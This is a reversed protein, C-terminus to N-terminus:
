PSAGRVLRPFVPYIKRLRIPQNLLLSVVVCAFRFSSLPIIFFKDCVLSFGESTEISPM